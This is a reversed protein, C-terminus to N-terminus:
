GKGGAKAAPLVFEDEHVPNSGSQLLSQTRTGSTDNLLM